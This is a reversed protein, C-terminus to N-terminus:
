VLYLRAPRDGLFPFAVRQVAINRKSFHFLLLVRSDHKRTSSGGLVNPVVFVENPDGLVKKGLVFWDRRHAM